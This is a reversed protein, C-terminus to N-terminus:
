ESRTGGDTSGPAFITYGRASGVERYSALPDFIGRSRLYDTITFAGAKAAPTVVLAPPSSAVDQKLEEVFRQEEAALWAAEDPNAQTKAMMALPFLWLYRSGPLRNEEALIPYAPEVATSLVLVRDGERTYRRVFERLADPSAAYAVHVKGTLGWFSLVFALVAAAAAGPAAAWGPLRARQARSGMVKAFLCGAAAARFGLVPFRHNYWGKQQLVVLAVSVLTAFGLAAALDAISGRWRRRLLVVVLAFVVTLTLTWDWIQALPVDYVAYGRRVLPIWRSFLAERVNAPLLAFHATYVVGAAALGALDVSVLRRLDRCVLAFYVEVVGALAVYQPKICIGIGAAIGRGLASLGRRAAADDSARACLYPMYLLFMLHERQGHDGICWLWVSLGMISSAVLGAALRGELLREAALTAWASRASWGSLLAILVAFVQMSHLGTLRALGVPITSLYMILPPNLDIFDVYPWRGDLLLGGAQLNLACDSDARPASTLISVVLFLFLAVPFAALLGVDFRSDPAAAPRSLPATPRRDRRAESM